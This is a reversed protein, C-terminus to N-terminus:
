QDSKKRGNLPLVVKLEFGNGENTEISVRGGYLAARSQINIIGVGKMENLINCGNGNDSILLLVENSNMILNIIAHTAGSHKLINNVQEQIIRFIDIKIKEDLVNEVIGDLKLEFKVPFTKLDEMLNAISETLGVFKDPIAMRRSIKRIEEIVNVIFDCSKDLYQERERGGSKALHIYWKAAALIQNLNDHLERGIEARENEQATLVAETIERQKNLREKAIQTQADKISTIDKTAGIMRSADHDKDFIIHGRDHVWAYSGDAKKFRYEDEWVNTFGGIIINNLNALVREKDEPHLLSEWFSQPILANEVQYGFVRKHGGDIWFLEKSQLDWEWLCDNTVETVFKYVENLIKLQQEPHQSHDVPLPRSLHNSSKFSVSLTEDCHYTIVDFWAGMEGWYEEFHVPIDQLFAKHYVAYFDLPIVDAFEEWINKGLINKAFVGLLKEAAKNWYIVEWKRNVTFFGNTIIENIPKGPFINNSRAKFQTTSLPKSTM